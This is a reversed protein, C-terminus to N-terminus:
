LPTGRGIQDFDLSQSGSEVSDPHDESGSVSSSVLHLGRKELAARREEERCAQRLGEETQALESLMAALQHARIAQRKANAAGLRRRRLEMSALRLERRSRGALEAACEARCLVWRGNIFAVVHAIDHPDVRVQVKTKRLAESRMDAHWYHICDVVIGTRSDVTAEGRRSPPWLLFRLDPSEVLPRGSGVTAVGQQFRAHPTMGDLGKHPQRPYVEFLFRRLADDLEPLRWIVDRRPDVDRSMERPNKLLQTNGSLFHVLQTNVTDFLREVTAGFKPRSPPRDVKEILCAACLQEFAVSGFEAGRDVVVRNPMRKHRDFIDRMTTFLGGIAPADFSLDYGVICRSWACTAVTLWLRDPAADTDPGVRVFVDLLTHDIHVVDLPGQGHIAPDRPGFAPAAAAAAKRGKRSAVLRDADRRKLYKLFTDYSFCPIGQAACRTVAVAHAARATVNRKNEYQEAVVKEVAAHTEPPFRPKFNGRLHDKPCLGVLGVGGERQARRFDSLWRRASHSGPGTFSRRPLGVEIAHRIVRYRELAVSLAQPPYKALVAQALMDSASEQPDGVSDVAASWSAAAASDVFVRVRDPQCLYHAALDVHVHRRFICWYVLDSDGVEHVLEELQIGPKTRTCALVRQLDTDPFTRDSQGWEALLFRTNDIFASSVGAPTWVRYGLGYREAAVEGPPCRWASEAGQVYRHPANAALKQLKAEPKCEVFGAFETGLVLFDPTHNVVVRRGNRSCYELPLQCPQDYYEIVTADTESQIVFAFEVTRSEYQITRGMKRSPYRGTVNGGRGQVARAPAAARVSRILDRGVDTVGHGTFLDALPEFDSSANPTSITLM